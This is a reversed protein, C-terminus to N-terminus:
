EGVEKKENFSRYFDVAKFFEVLSKDVKIDRFGNKEADYKIEGFKEHINKAALALGVGHNRGGCACRCRRGRADYCRGDCRGKKGDPTKYEMLTPM